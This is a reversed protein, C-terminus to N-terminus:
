STKWIRALARNGKQESPFLVEGWTKRGGLAELGGGGGWWLGVVRGVLLGGRSL